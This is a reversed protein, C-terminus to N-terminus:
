KKRKLIEDINAPSRKLKIKIEYNKIKFKKKKIPSNRGTYVVIAYIQSISENHLNPFIKFFSKISEELQELAEEVKNGKLELFIINKSDRNSYILFDCTRSSNLCQQLSTEKNRCNGNYQPDLLFLSFIEKPKVEYRFISKKEKCSIVKKKGPCKLEKVLCKKFKQILKEYLSCQCM